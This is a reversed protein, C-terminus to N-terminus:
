AGVPIKARHLSAGNGGIFEIAMTAPSLRAAMFGLRNGLAFRTGAVPKTSRPSAGAGSTLYHIDDRVIHELSHAHGNMYVQAGYRVLLPQILQVLAETHGDPDGTYVPHHGVVIKWIARSAALERKLWDLQWQAGGDRLQQSFSDYSDKFPNTDLFFFDATSGNALTETHKYHSDPLRWRSSIETYAVQAQVNGKHDHNGLVAYWPVMLSPATYVKEFRKKWKRNTTSTVGRPYFNDGTSIVFRAGIAAATKGMQVAVDRQRAAGKGWDGVVLFALDDAAARALPIRWLALIAAVAAGSRLFARRSIPRLKIM